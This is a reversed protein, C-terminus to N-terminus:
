MRTIPRSSLIWHEYLKRCLEVIDNIKPQMRGTAQAILTKVAFM